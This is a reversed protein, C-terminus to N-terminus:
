PFIAVLISVNAELQQWAHWEACVPSGELRGGRALTHERVLGDAGAKPTGRTPCLEGADRRMGKPM